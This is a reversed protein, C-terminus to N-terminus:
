FSGGRKGLLVAGKKVPPLASYKLAGKGEKLIELGIKFLM